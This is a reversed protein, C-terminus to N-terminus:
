GRTIVETSASILGRTLAKDRVIKCHYRINAATPVIQVLEALYTAGGVAELDGRVQLHDTLTIQDIVEGRESLDLMAQYIKRHSSRYFDQETILELAKTIAENELLIAGLISQEAELNQPPLRPTSLDPTAM